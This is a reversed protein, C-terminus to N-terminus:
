KTYKQNGFEFDKLFKNVDKDDSYKIKFGGNIM